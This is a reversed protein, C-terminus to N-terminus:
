EWEGFGSGVFGYGVLVRGSVSVSGGDRGDIYANVSAFMVKLTSENNTGQVFPPM